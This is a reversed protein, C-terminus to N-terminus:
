NSVADLGALGATEATLGLEERCWAFAAVLFWIAVLARVLDGIGGWASSLAFLGPGWPEGVPRLHTAMLLGGFERIFTAIFLVVVIGLLLALPIGPRRRMAAISTRMAPLVRENTLVIVIPALCLLVLLACLAARLVWQLHHSSWASARPSLFLVSAFEIAALAATIGGFALFRLFYTRVGPRFGRWDPARCLGSRAIVTCFGSGVLARILVALLASPMYVLISWLFLSDNDPEAQLRRQVVYSVSGSFDMTPLPYAMVSIGWLPNIARDFAQKAEEGLTLPHAVHFPRGHLFRVDDNWVTSGYPLYFVVGEEVADLVSLAVPLLLIIPHRRIWVAAELAYRWAASFARLRQRVTEPLIARPAAPGPPDPLIASGCKPCDTIGPRYETRCQHCWGM